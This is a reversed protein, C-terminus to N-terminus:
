ADMKSSLKSIDPSRLPWPFVSGNYYGIIEKADLLLDNKYCIYEFQQKVGGSTRVITLAGALWSIVEKM